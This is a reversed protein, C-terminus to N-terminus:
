RADHGPDRNSATPTPMLNRNVALLRTLGHLADISPTAVGVRRGLERTAGVIGDLELPRGAQADQLMSSRFGGLRATVAHRDDPSQAIAYGLRAGIAATELMCSTSFARLLPDGIIEDSMAETLVSIPNITLNGWLKYWVDRRIEHSHTADFGASRFVSVIEGASPGSALAEPAADGLILGLGMTHDSVGPEAISASMHVVGGLTRAVPLARVIGGGPDVSALPETGAAAIGHTFWWPVGNMASVIRTQKGLLPALRPALDPLAYAKLAVIVLDQPGLESAEASAMALPAELLAGGSRLRWGHARLAALTAGRALANVEHGAAALRTGLLGGIAGAGVLTIRM